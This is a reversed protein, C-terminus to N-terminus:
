NEDSQVGFCENMFGLPLAKVNIVDGDKFQDLDIDKTAPVQDVEYNVVKVETRRNLKHDEESCPVGNSCRNLLKSEGFGKAVLRSPDIGQKVLYNVVSESRKQSLKYNYEDSGRSDTYSSIEISIPFKNLIDILGDLIPIAGPKPCWANFAYYINELKWAYNIKLQEQSFSTSAKLVTDNPQYVAVAESPICNNAYGKVMAKVIVGKANPIKFRYKGYKDTKAIYVKGDAKNFLFLTAGEIPELTESNRVENDFFSIKVPEKYRFSYLDNNHNLRDSAFYGSTNTSDQTWGFDDGSSNIPYSIHEPSAKGDLADQLRIKFIDLGGLGPLADSSFYLYGNATINPFVENGATNVNTGFAKMAGWPKDINDRQAYYLDFGGTGNAVDSSFVILKGDQNIAPHMVSNWKPNGFPLFVTKFSKKHPIAEVLRLHNVGKIDSNSYNTSFYFHRNKDVSAVGVNYKLKDLGKVLEVITNTKGSEYHRFFLPPANKFNPDANPNDNEKPDDNPTSDSLVVPLTRIKSMSAEWVRDYNIKTGEFSNAKNRDPRNSSFFLNNGTIFPSFEQYSTNVNMFGLHWNISDKKMYKLMADDAYAAAKQEYADLGNLWTSAKKYAHDRAYMEAIRIQEQKTAGHNGNPFVRKYIRFANYFDNSLWYCDALHILAYFDNPVTRLYKEYMVAAEQYEFKLCKSDAKNLIAKQEKKTLEKNRAPLQLVVAINAFLFLGIAIHTKNLRKLIM